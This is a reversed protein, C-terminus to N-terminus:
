QRIRLRHVVDRSSTAEPHDRGHLRGVGRGVKAKCLRPDAGRPDLAGVRPLREELCARWECEPGVKRHLM